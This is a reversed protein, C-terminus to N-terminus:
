ENKHKEPLFKAQLNTTFVETILGDNRNAEFKEKLENYKDMEAEGFKSKRLEVFQFKWAFLTECEEVELILQKKM